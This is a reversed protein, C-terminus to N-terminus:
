GQKSQPYIGRQLRGSWNPFEQFLREFHRDHEPTSIIQFWHPNPYIGLIVSMLADGTVMAAQVSREAAENSINLYRHELLTAMLAKMRFPSPPHSLRDISMEKWNSRDSLRFYLYIVTLVFRVLEEQDPMLKNRLIKAMELDGKQKMERDLIEITMKLAFSDAIIERAQSPYCRQAGV